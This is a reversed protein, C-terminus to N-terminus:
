EARKEMRATLKGRSLYGGAPSDVKYSCPGELIVRAGSDYAIEMLGSALDYRYGIRVAIGVPANQPDAWRCGVAGVIRGVAEVRPTTNALENPQHVSPSIKYAWAGLLMVGLIMAAAMYSFVPGGVFSSSPLSLLSPLPRYLGITPPPVTSESSTPDGIFVERGEESKERGDKQGEARFGLEEGWPEAPRHFSSSLRAHLDLYELYQRRVAADALILRDLRQMEEPSITEDCLAALLEAIPLDDVPM